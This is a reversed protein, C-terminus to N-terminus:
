PAASSLGHPARLGGNLGPDEGGTINSFHLFLYVFLALTALLLLGGVLRFRWAALASSAPEHPVLPPRVYDEPM